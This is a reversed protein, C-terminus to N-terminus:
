VKIELKFIVAFANGEGDILPTWISVMTTLDSSVKIELRREENNTTIYKTSTTTCETSTEILLGSDSEVYLKYKLYRKGTDADLDLDSLNITVTDGSNVFKGYGDVLLYGNEANQVVSFDVEISMGDIKEGKTNCLTVTVKSTGSNRRISYVTLRTVDFVEIITSDSSEVNFNYENESLARQVKTNDSSSFEGIVGITYVGSANINVSTQETFIRDPYVKLRVYCTDTKGNIHIKVQIQEFDSDSVTIVGDILTYRVKNEATDEPTTYTVVYGSWSSPNVKYDLKTPVGKDVEFVAYGTTSDYDSSVFHVGRAENTSTAGCATLVFSAPFLVLLVLIFLKKLKNRM